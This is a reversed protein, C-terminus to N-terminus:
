LMNNHDFNPVKKLMFDDKKNQDGEDDGHEAIQSNDSKKVVDDKTGKTEDTFPVPERKTPLVSTQEKSLNLLQSDNMDLEDGYIDPGVSSETYEDECPCDSEGDFM